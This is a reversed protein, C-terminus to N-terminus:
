FFFDAYNRFGDRGQGFFDFWWRYAELVDGIPNLERDVTGAYSMSIAVLTLDFRDAIRRDMGRAQNVTWRRADQNVQTPSQQALGNPFVIYGGITCFACLHGEAFGDLGRSM